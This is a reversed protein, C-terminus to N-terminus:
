GNFDPENALPHATDNTMLPRPGWVPADLDTHYYGIWGKEVQKDRAMTGLPEIVGMKADPSSALLIYKCIIVKSELVQRPSLRAFWQYHVRTLIEDAPIYIGYLKPYLDLYQNSLLNDVLVPTDDMTKIGIMKGEILNIKNKQIKSETWRNIEGLFEAQSTYDTSITRQIFEVLKEVMPNEKQAGMFRTDPYFEKTTSTINRDINECIFMKHNTTGIKYMESLNRMCLFSPPCIIGGYIYLIKALGLQRIYDLVPDSISKMNINWNPILKEFSSDDILCIHFSEDCQNIISKVTLYMYPQNLNTSSRSGFSLWNRANYEYKVPIWLIPKRNKTDVLDPDTLLYKHIASYNETDSERDLKDTYRNYLFGVGALAIILLIINTLNKTQFLM